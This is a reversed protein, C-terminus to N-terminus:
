QEAAVAPGSNKGINIDDHSRSVSGEVAWGGGFARCLSVLSVRVATEAKVREDNISLKTRQADLVSLYESAGRQYLAESFRYTKEAATEAQLLQERREKSSTHAVFANEVDELALLFTKEYKAAVQDLRADTGAIHARIRGANFIPATLGSGLAYVGEALSSFGGVALAGFGGSASLVLKPFQDARAAGLSAAAVSVETQALRLDPRQSLLSSPLLKPIAPLASPLVAAVLRSELKAPSEGLLVSLRHILTAEAANLVPLASETSHVLTEQRSVETDNTLGARYFAQLARLRERQIGINKRLIAIREQAGRLELYNTAVQALLGVQVGHRAEETGAAQAAMGEAELHRAGFVDVEWRAALGGTIVNATPTVLEIGGQKGPVALVRDIRKERGGSLFFDISPYLASEAVTVLANAERVRATAIRLDHNAALAQSILENLLPDHFGQWWEKLDAQNSDNQVVPAHRWDTPTSLVVRDSVRTPTCGALIVIMLAISPILYRAMVPIEGDSIVSDMPLLIEKSSEPSADAQSYERKVRFWAAYLAPLFFVTLVTAITLGGMIAIAQPGFFDNRSLPIMALIAAAATLLIPRFRRVTSEVIATWTDRGAKEDQEIQDVLIVSNRMIMGALAIIGFLAVFGFPAGFLLLAFAAGIVGLPATMFVLLTRSLNQLQIMLLILTVIVVLPIWILISKQAIWADEKAAGTEIFYGAPLSDKIPELKPVIQAAVDPALTGDVVDARVSIAPFRNRRWRVGDEFVTEFKVFQALPASRGNATRVTVDPLEDAAARLDKKARWVIDILKDDERFQGVPIGTYHAQLAQSLSSTSVGLARAKDQDLVLRLSPIRDHWDDNVDVTNPNTRVVEAVQDAINRVINSDEGFVRFVLPYDMPPGVNLRMTRGRVEPFDTAFTLRLRHMVRERAANDRTMVVFEALNTNALQQVFLLFFRPSGGGIYTAYNMVDKDKALLTEMRKAIAETQTFSSGEPLWLDIIVEPRNSLPFFQEPVQTLTAVGVGFLAVTSIIVKKRHEVCRDVWRRLRNYFPTDFLDHVPKAGHARVKLMLFGLYPTFVVAGIWSLFLSIAVVQFISVTYEGASSKALGVPLFGAITILTGTLMPFATARYAFTAAHMRDLGEELKRAMMEIAIMADDVMLGLALILANLSIRHLDIGFLLMCLLTGALVLPVTFAVVSGTRFGLSLFSVLLVAALAEFFTSAFEWMQSKVVRSQNAVPDIDIGMPLESKIRSLTTELAKGLELVDGKKNMTIGLGIVEKGNFRMQFEPPDTYGRTVKAFDSVRITRGDLRVALNAVSDVSDFSGTLRIPLNRQSSFVTGAPVMGNQAQLIQAVSATDLGLEALKKDSFEVYIKEDQVGILDAKEVDKVRLIQQRASDAAAKLEAYSFGEGSFAYLLSYTDGFEDNFFPGVIGPPLSMRIDAVKKRVQYWLNPIEKPPTDERPAIFIVSEGSKSYSRLTDLNPLEQIKKELRDTVQQEVELATAGPYLTKVVMVRFTFEPDERQGLGFYAVIGGLLVLAMLFGTFARHELAWESLNFDKM